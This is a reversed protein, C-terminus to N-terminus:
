DVTQPVIFEMIVVSLLNEGISVVGYFEKGALGISQWFHGTDVSRYVGDYTAAFLTDGITSLSAVIVGAGLGSDIASWSIGTDTSVFIGSDAAAAFINFGITDFAYIEGGRYSSDNIWTSGNDTSLYLTYPGISSESTGMFLINDINAFGRISLITPNPSVAQWTKGEDISRIVGHFNTLGAFLDNGNNFLTTIQVDSLSTIGARWTLGSDTSLFIGDGNTGALMINGNMIFAQVDLNTLGTNHPTWTLGSDMSLFVGSDTGAYIWSGVPYLASVSVNLPLETNIAAWTEGDDTSRYVGYYETGAYVNNGETALSVVEISNFISDDPTTQWSNGFDLSFIIGSDTTGAFLESYPSISFTNVSFTAFNGSGLEWTAGMNTSSALAQTYGLEQSTAAFLFPGIAAFGSVPGPLTYEYSTSDDSSDLNFISGTRAGEFVKGEHAFLVSINNDEDGSDLEIWTIGSDASVIVGNNTGAYVKSGCLVFSSIYAGGNGGIQVWQGFAESHAILLLFLIVLSKKM